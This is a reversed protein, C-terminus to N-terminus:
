PLKYIFISTGARAIPTYQKLWPYSDEPNKGFFFEGPEGFAGQQITASIAFYGSPPGKRSSWGEIRDGLYYEATGGGGFYELVIKDISNEDLYEKLRKMDQGWDYNSDVIYRYGERTGGGIENYYSLYYPFVGLTEAFAWFMFFAIVIYKPIFEVHEHYLERLAEFTTKPNSNHVNWIWGVLQKSVLIYIFPFTPLVHRVGINLPSTMSYYWYVAIFVLMTTEAVHERIWNSLALYKEKLWYSLPWLLSGIGVIGALGVSILYLLPDIKAVLRAFTLLVVIILNVIFIKLTYKELSLLAAFVQIRLRERLFLILAFATLIHCALPEKLLYAVPFYYWWGYNNVEGLFYTTNGGAARQIVMLLGLMYQGIARTSEHRILWLDSDVLWRKGFTSLNHTADALQREAPYDWVHWIYVVWVLIFGILGILIINGVLKAGFRLKQLLLEKTSFRKKKNLTHEQHVLILLLAVIGYVPVLLFLSFKLLQAVGFALGAIILNKRSPNELFNVFSAIGIFFGFAAALDTTVYRSHAIFTPSFVFFMLALLATLSGFRLRAWRYLFFGFLIALLMMPLRAWRIIEEPNNGARYIFATGMDWQGNIDQQWAKTDTPFNLNLFVLPIAALDKMLPPHEPNLRMDKEALYSYSAPIHALEDVILSDNWASTFLLLFMFGLLCTAKINARDKFWPIKKM